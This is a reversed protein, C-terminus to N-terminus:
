GNTAGGAAAALVARVIKPYTGCRCLNGSM